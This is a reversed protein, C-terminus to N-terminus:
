PVATAWQRAERFDVGFFNVMNELEGLSWVTVCFSDEGYAVGTDSGAVSREPYWDLWGNCGIGGGTGPVPWFQISSMIATTVQTTLM